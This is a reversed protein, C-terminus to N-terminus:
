RGYHQHGVGSHLLQTMSKPEQDITIILAAATDDEVDDLAMKIVNLVTLKSLRYYTEPDDVSNTVTVNYYRRPHKPAVM